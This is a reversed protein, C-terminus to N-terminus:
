GGVQCLLMRCRVVCCSVTVCMTGNCYAVYCSLMVHRTVVFVCYLMTVCMVVGCMMCCLLMVYSYVCCLMVDNWLVNLLLSGMNHLVFPHLVVYRVTVRHMAVYVMVACHTVGRCPM